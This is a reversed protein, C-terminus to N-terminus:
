SKQIEEWQEWVFDFLAHLPWFIPDDPSRDTNLVGDIGSHIGNHYNVEIDNNLESFEYDALSQTGDGEITFRAPLPRNLNESARGASPHAFEAPIPDGPNWFPLPVFREGDNENLWTEFKNIFYRHWELFSSGHHTGFHTAHEDGPKQDSNIYQVILQYFATKEDSSLSNLNTRAM